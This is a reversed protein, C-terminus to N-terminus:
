IGGNADNPRKSGGTSKLGKHGFIKSTRVQHCLIHRMGRRGCRRCRYHDFLRGREILSWDHWGIWCRMKM